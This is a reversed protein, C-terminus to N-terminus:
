AEAHVSTLFLKNFTIMCQDASPEPTPILASSLFKRFELDDHDGCM